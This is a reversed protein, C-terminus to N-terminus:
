NVPYLYVIPTDQAARYTSLFFPLIGIPTLLYVCQRVHAALMLRGYLNGQDRNLGLAVQLSM